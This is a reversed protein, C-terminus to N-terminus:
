IEGFDIEGMVKETLESFDPETANMFSEYCSKDWIELIEGAGSIVIEKNLEAYAKLDKPIQMRDSADLEINKVGATFMRIFDANIKVLRNLKGIKAMMKEWPEKPYIELCKQHVSRKVVFSNENTIKLSKILASPFKMRGKDDIKCEYTEYFNMM